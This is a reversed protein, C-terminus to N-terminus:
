ILWCHIATCLLNNKMSLVMIDRKVAFTKIMTVTILVTVQWKWFSLMELEAQTWQRLQPAVDKSGAADSPRPELEVVFQLKMGVAAIKESFFQLQKLQTHYM